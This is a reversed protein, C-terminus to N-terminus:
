LREWVTAGDMTDVAYVSEDVKAAAGPIVDGGDRWSDINGARHQEAAAKVADEPTDAEIVVEAIEEVFQQLFVKFKPMDKEQSLDWLCWCGLLATLGYLAAPVNFHETSTTLWTGLLCAGLAVAARIM